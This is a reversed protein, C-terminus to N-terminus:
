SQVVPLARAFNKGSQGHVVIVVSKGSGDCARCTECTAKRGGEESAPCVLEGRLKPQGAMRVRFTGAGLARAKKVDDCTDTSAQCYVLVDRLKPSKWQHTYGTHGKAMCVVRDWVDLPVAAPDGYSGLRVLRGTFLPPIEDPALVPYSGRSFAGYISMPARGVNVYCSRPRDSGNGRHICGGCISKDARESLARMPNMDSRLIWTQLMDGTKSNASAKGFGTAIVVIPAGDIRSPGQWLIYGTPRAM